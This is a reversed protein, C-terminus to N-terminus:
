SNPTPSTTTSPPASSSATAAGASNGPDADPARSSVENAWAVLELWTGTLDENTAIGVLDSLGYFEEPNLPIGAKSTQLAELMAAVRCFSGTLRVPEFEESAPPFPLGSTVWQETYAEGQEIAALTEAGNLRRGTFTFPGFAREEPPSPRRALKWPNQKPM